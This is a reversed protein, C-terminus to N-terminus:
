KYMDSRTELATEVEAKDYPRVQSDRANLRGSGPTYEVEKDYPRVQSDSM